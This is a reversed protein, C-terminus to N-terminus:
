LLSHGIEFGIGILIGTMIWITAIIALIVVVGLTASAKDGTTLKPM